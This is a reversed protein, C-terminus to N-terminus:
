VINCYLTSAHACVCVCTRVCVRVCVWMCACVCACGCVRVCVCVCVFPGISRGMHLDISSIRMACVSNSDGIESVQLATFIEPNVTYLDVPWLTLGICYNM